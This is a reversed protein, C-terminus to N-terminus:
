ELFWAGLKQCHHRPTAWMYILQAMQSTKPYRAQGGAARSPCVDGTISMGCAVWPVDLTVPYKRTSLQFSGMYRQIQLQIEGKIDSTSLFIKQIYETILYCSDMCFIPCRKETPVASGSLKSVSSTPVFHYWYM